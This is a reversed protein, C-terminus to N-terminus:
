FNINFTFPYGCAGHSKDYYEMFATAEKPTDIEYENGAFNFALTDYDATVYGLGAGYMALAIPCSNSDCSREAAEIMDECVDITLTAM